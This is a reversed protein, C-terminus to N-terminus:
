YPLPEGDDPSPAAKGNSGAEHKAVEALLVAHARQMDAATFSRPVTSKGAAKAIQTARDEFKVGLRDLCDGVTMGLPAQVKASAQGIAPPAQRDDGPDSANAPHNMDDTSDARKIQLLGRLFYALSTTDMSGTAKDLPRGKEPLIPWETGELVISEGSEHFLLYTRKSFLQPVERFGGKGDPELRAGKDVLVSSLPSVGLGEGTLCDNSFEIVAEASTYDFRMYSNTSDHAVAKAKKQARVWASFLGAKGTTKAEDTM